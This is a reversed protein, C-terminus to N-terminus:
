VAAIFLEVPTATGSDNRVVISILDTMTGFDVTSADDDTLGLAAANGLVHTHGAKLAVTYSHATFRLGLELDKSAASLNTVRIYRVDATDINNAATHASAGFTAITTAQGTVCTVTREYIENIGAISLSNVSGRTEAGSGADLTISETHTVTLTAM